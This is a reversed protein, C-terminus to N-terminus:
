EISVSANIKENEKIKKIAEDITQIDPDLEMLWQARNKVGQAIQILWADTEDKVNSEIKSNNINVSFKQELQYMPEIAHLCTLFTEIFKKINGRWLEQQDEREEETEFQSYQIAVGSAAQSAETKVIDGVSVNYRNAIAAIKEKFIKWLELSKADPTVFDFDGFSNTEPVFPIRIITSPDVKINANEPLGKATPQSFGQYKLTHNLGTLLIALQEMSVMLDDDSEVYIFDSPEKAYCLSVPIVGYGHGVRSEVIMDSNLVYFYKEDYAYYIIPKVQLESYNERRWIFLKMKMSNEDDTVIWFRNPTIMEANMKNNDVFFRFAVMGLLNSYKEALKMKRIIEIDDLANSLIEQETEVVFGRKLVKSRRDTIKSILNYYEFEAALKSPESFHDSLIDDRYSLFYGDYYDKKKQATKQREEETRQRLYAVQDAFVIEKIDTAM